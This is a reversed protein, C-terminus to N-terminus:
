AALQAVRNRGGHKAAYLSRDARKMLSAIDDATRDFVALGVSVTVPVVDSGCRFPSDAILFRLREAIQSAVSGDTDPMVVVFEEGGLRCCLDSARSGNRIRRAFEKLVEDGVDHGRRDNIQKFHDIDAIFLSLPREETRAREMVGPLHSELFRRNQLGTLPDTVALEVTTRLSQRLGEDYRKRKIQTRVRALLENRDVPRLLYDNVGLELARAVRGEDDPAALLLIPTRRTADNSRLQSCLRLPDFTSSALDVIVLDAVPAEALAAGFSTKRCQHETSLIRASRDALGSAADDVIVIRGQLGGQGIEALFDAGGLISATTDARIRLEDSLLKLRLLSKVRSMLQLDRVPKTLFDDAGAELGRVRDSPLDLATVLIVPLHRTRPDAKLRRCVEYGDMDPMMVDLLVLDVNDSACISLAEPGRAAALVEFYEAHLKAELLKRNIDVDDVILVRGTM